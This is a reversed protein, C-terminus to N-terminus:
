RPITELQMNDEIGPTTSSAQTKSAETASLHSSTIQLNVGENSLSFTNISTSILSSDQSLSSSAQMNIKNRIEVETSYELIM